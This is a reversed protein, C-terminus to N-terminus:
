SCHVMQHLISQPSPSLLLFFSKMMKTKSVMRFLLYKWTISVEEEMKDLAYMQPYLFKSSFDVPMTTFLHQYYSRIDPAHGGALIVNKLLALTFMPYADLSPPLNLQGGTPAQGTVKMYNAIIDVCMNLVAERANGLNSDLSKNIAMKGILNTLTAFDLSDYVQRLDPSATVPLTFVRIVKEGRTNTYLLASQYYVDPSAINDTMDFQVAIAKDSDIACLAMLNTTRLLYHGFHKKIELGLSCRVRMVAEFGTERLLTSQLDRSFKVGYASASFHSYHFIQGGTFQSLIGITATDNFSSSAFIFTDIGVNKSSCELGLDKYFNGEPKLLSVEKPTGLLKSDFRNELAGDGVAPLVSNFVLMKGGGIRKMLESATKVASGLCVNVDQTNEFMMPLSQLLKVIVDKKQALNVLLEYGDPITCDLSTSVVMNPVDGGLNYLHFTSDYTILGFRTTGDEYGPLYELINILTNSLIELLGSHVSYYSVDVVFFYVPPAPPRKIYDRTAIFEVAGNTLEARSNIDTRIGRNDLPSFYESPVDNSYNCFNCKWLRGGESFTVYPNIYIKCRRCRLIGINGFDVIPLSQDVDNEVSLPNIVCGVPVGSSKFAKKTNPIVTSVARMYEPPCENVHSFDRGYMQQQKVPGQNFTNDSMTHAHPIPTTNMTQVPAGVQITGSNGTNVFGVNNQVPVTPVGPAPLPSSVPVGGETSVAPHVAYQRRRNSM